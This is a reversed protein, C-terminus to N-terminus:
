PIAPDQTLPYKKGRQRLLERLIVAWVYLRYGRSKKLAENMVEPKPEGHMFPNVFHRYKIDALAKIWPAFDAFGHGPLQGIGNVHQWAYFFLLQKGCIKIVEPVSANITQLHYPAVAIGLHKSANVDTFAKFSDPGDLLSNGHNEIAIYAKNEEALAVIPKLSEIFAKMRSTLDQPKCPGTSGRVAVGGGVQGLLGAYKKFDHGYYSFASIKLKHKTLLAKLGKGGLRTRVDELHKCHRFPAWIDIGEFGLGAIQECTKEISLSSYCVSSASMRMKWKKAEPLVAGVCKPLLSMAAGCGAVGSLFSRRTIAEGIDTVNKGQM